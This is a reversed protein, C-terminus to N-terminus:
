HLTLSYNLRLLERKTFTVALVANELLIMDSENLLIIKEKLKEDEVPGLSLNLKLIKRVHYNSSFADCLYSILKLDIPDDSIKSELLDAVIDIQEDAARIMSLISKEPMTYVKPKAKEDM